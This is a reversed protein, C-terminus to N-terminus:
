KKSFRHYYTCVETNPDGVPQSGDARICARVTHWQNKWANTKPIPWGNGDMHEDDTGNPPLDTMRFSGSGIHIYTGGTAIPSSIHYIVRPYPYSPAASGSNHVYSHPKIRDGTNTTCCGEEDQFKYFSLNAAPRPPLTFNLDQCNNAENSEHVANQSDACMWATCNGSTNPLYVLSKNEEPASEGPDLQNADTGDDTLYQWPGGNCSISYSSRIGTAPRITGQNKISGAFRVPDAAYYPPQLFRFSHVTFDPLPSTYSPDRTVEFVAETSCNNSEHKEPVEGDGNNNVEKRDSCIVFNYIGPSLALGNNLTRLNVTFYEDKHDGVNINGRQIQEMGVKRWESHSDEKYGNSILAMVYMDDRDGSWDADGINETISHIRITETQLYSYREIGSTDYLKVSQTIFDPFGTMLSDTIPTQTGPGIGVTIVDDCGVNTSAVAVNNHGGWDSLILSAFVISWAIRLFVKM